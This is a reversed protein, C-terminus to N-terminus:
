CERKRLNGQNWTCRTETTLAEKVQKMESTDKDEDHEKIDGEEDNKREVLIRISVLLEPYPISFYDFPLNWDLSASLGEDVM